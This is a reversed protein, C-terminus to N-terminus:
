GMWGGIKLWRPNPICGVRLGALIHDRQRRERRERKGGMVRARAQVFRVERVPVASTSVQALVDECVEKRLLM